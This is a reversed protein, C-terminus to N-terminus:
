EEESKMEKKKKYLLFFNPNWKMQWKDNMLIGDGTEVSRSVIDYINDKHNM